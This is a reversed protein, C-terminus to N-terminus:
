SEIDGWLQVKEKLLLDGIEEQICTMFWTEEMEKVLNSLMALYAEFEEGSHIKNVLMVRTQMKEYSKREVM